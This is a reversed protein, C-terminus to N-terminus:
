RPPRWSFSRRHVPSPGLKELAARHAATPYGKHKAFGYGPYVGDLVDMIRDRLVKAIVSAAAAAAVLSDAKPLALSRCSLGPVYFTGDAVVTDYCPPLKKVSRAMAWLSAQLINMRDIRGPSASQVARVVGLSIMRSFLLERKAASLKKSDTLGLSLLEEEQAPTLVAAAAVVPGALPGRGAEDTGAIRGLSGLDM